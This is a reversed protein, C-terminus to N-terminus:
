TRGFRCVMRSGQRLEGMGFPVLRHAEQLAEGDSQADLEAAVRFSGFASLEFVTYRILPCTLTAAELV